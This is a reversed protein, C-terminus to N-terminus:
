ALRDPLPKLTYIANFFLDAKHQDECFNTVKKIKGDEFRFRSVVQPRTRSPGRELWSPPRSRLGESEAIVLPQAKFDALALQDFFAM